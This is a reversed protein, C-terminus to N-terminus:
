ASAQQMSQEEFHNRRLSTVSAKHGNCIPKDTLFKENMTEIFEKVMDEIVKSWQSWNSFCSCEGEVRRRKTNCPRDDQM